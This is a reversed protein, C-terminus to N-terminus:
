LDTERDRDNRSDLPVPSYDCDIAMKISPKLTNTDIHTSSSKVERDKKRDLWYFSLMIFLGATCGTISCAFFV